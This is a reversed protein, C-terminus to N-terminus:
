FNVRNNTGKFNKMMADFIFESFDHKFDPNDQFLKFVEFNSNIHNILKDALVKDFTIRANQKDSHTLANVFEQDNAVDKILDQTMKHVKGEDSFQTGYKDNFSKLINSLNDLETDPKGGRMDTPIPKLEEGQELHINFEGERQLRYSGMDINDLIGQALDENALRGLKNQLHNLFIYLRELYPNVFPIIQALFVYLRVYTKCKARFDNQAPEDLTKGFVAVASDLIIHLRDM